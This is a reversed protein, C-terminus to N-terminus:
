ESLTVFAPLHETWSRRWFLSMVWCHTLMLLDQTWRLFVSPLTSETFWSIHPDGAYHYFCMLWQMLDGPNSEPLIQHCYWAGETSQFLKRRCVLGEFLCVPSCCIPIWTAFSVPPCDGWWQLATLSSESKLAKVEPCDKDMDTLDKSLASLAVDKQLHWLTTSYIEM